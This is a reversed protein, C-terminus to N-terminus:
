AGCADVELGVSVFLSPECHLFQSGERKDHMGMFLAGLSVLWCCLSIVGIPFGWRESCPVGMLLWPMYGERFRDKFVGIPSVFM